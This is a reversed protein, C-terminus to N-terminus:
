SAADQALYHLPTPVFTLDTADRVALRMQMEQVHHPVPNQYSALSREIAVDASVRDTRVM